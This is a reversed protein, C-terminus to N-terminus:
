EKYGSLKIQDFVKQVRPLTYSHIFSHIFVQNCLFAEPGHCLISIVYKAVVVDVSYLYVVVVYINCGTLYKIFKLAHCIFSALKRLLDENQSSM